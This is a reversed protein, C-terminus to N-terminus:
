INQPRLTLKPNQKWEESFDSYLELENWDPDKIYISYTVDYDTSGIEVNNEKLEKYVKKVDDM